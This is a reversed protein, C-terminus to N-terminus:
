ASVPPVTVQAGSPGAHVQSATLAAIQRALEDREREAQEKGREARERRRREREAENEAQKAARELEDKQLM